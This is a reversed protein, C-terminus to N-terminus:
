LVRAVGSPIISSKGAQNHIFARKKRMELASLTAALVRLVGYMNAFEIETREFGSKVVLCDSL